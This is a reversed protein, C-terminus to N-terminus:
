ILFGDKKLQSQIAKCVDEFLPIRGGPNTTNTNAAWILKNTILSYVNVQVHWTRQTAYHGPTGANYYTTAFGNGWGHRWYGSWTSYYSPFRGPVWQQSENEGTQKMLVVGDYGESRLRSSYAEEDGNLLSDKGLLLYSQTATGPYLSVMYDEVQRRVGQDYLLAAVVIKHTDPQKLNTDPDKWSNVIQTPGVCATLSFAVLAFFIKNNM